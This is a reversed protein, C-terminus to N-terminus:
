QRKIGTVTYGADLMVKKLTADPIDQGPRLGLSVLGKDLDVAVGSVEKRKGMMKEISRACFDCVLGDVTMVLKAPAPSAAILLAAAVSIFLKKM